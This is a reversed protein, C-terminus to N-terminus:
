KAPDNAFSRAIAVRQQQGGSLESPKHHLRNGLGVTKLLEMGKLAAEEAPLGAFTQWHRARAPRTACGGPM